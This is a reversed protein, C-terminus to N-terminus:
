LLFWAPVFEQLYFTCVFVPQKLLMSVESLETKLIEMSVFDELKEILADNVSRCPQFAFCWGNKNCSFLVLGVMFGKVKKSIVNLGVRPNPCKVAPSGPEIRPLSPRWVNPHIGGASYANKPHIHVSYL